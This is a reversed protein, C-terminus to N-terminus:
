LGEVLKEFKDLIWKTNDDRRFHIFHKKTVEKTKRRRMYGVQMFMALNELIDLILSGRQKKGDKLGSFTCKFSAIYDFVWKNSKVFKFYTEDRNIVPRMLVIDHAVHINQKSAPWEMNKEDVLLNPCIKGASNKDGRLKGIIKLILFLFGRTLWLRNAKAVVFVDIDSDKGTNFAAVSGTVCLMKIWPIMELTKFVYDNDKLLKLTSDVHKTWNVPQFGPAYYKHFKSKVDGKKVLRIVEDHLFKGAFTKSSILTTCLQHYSVPYKFISRYALTEKIAQACPNDKVTTM